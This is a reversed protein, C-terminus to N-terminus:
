LNVVPRSTSDPATTDIRNGVTRLYDNLEEWIGLDIAESITLPSCCAGCPPSIHCSCGGRLSILERYLAQDNAVREDLEDLQEEALAAARAEETPPKM